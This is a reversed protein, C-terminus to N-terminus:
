FVVVISRSKGDCLRCDECQVSKDFSNTCYKESPLIDDIERKIRFTQWGMAQAIAADEATEVSAMLIGKYEEHSRWQHTYGITAVAADILPDIATKPIACIDGYATLRLIKGYDRMLKLHRHDLHPYSSEKYARYINQPAFAPNVYCSKGRLPCDGCVSYDQGTKIAEVPPVDSRLIWLQVVNAGLKQNSTMLFGTIAAVVPKGDIKSEGGWAIASNLLKM